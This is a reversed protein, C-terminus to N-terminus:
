RAVVVPSAGAIASSAGAVCVSKVLISIQFLKHRGPDKYSAPLVSVM